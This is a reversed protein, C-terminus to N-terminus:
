QHTKCGPCFRPPEVSDYIDPRPKGLVKVLGVAGKDIRNISHDLIAYNGPVQFKAEVVAAGGSPVLTTQVSRAPPSVLDGERYVRDFISGIIHFSSVLNPGANGFYIRVNDDQKVVLPKEVLQGERGNFLVHKPIEKSAGDYDIEYMPSGDDDDDEADVVYLEHQMVYFEKDVKPLGDSPEVLILGFMGNNIHVPIPAAACHYVFLGPKQLLFYGTKTEGQEAFTVPSGGGPGCAAHFDISHAMGSEDYNTHNVQLVDGVRARIFPGPICYKIKGQTEDCFGFPWWEYKKSGSVRMKKNISFVDVVLRVPHSRTIPPPVKPAMTVVAREVPYQLEASLSRKTEDTLTTRHNLSGGLTDRFLEPIYSPIDDYDDDRKKNKKKNNDNIDDHEESHAKNSNTQQNNQEDNSQNCKNCKNNEEEALTLPTQNWQCISLVVGAAAITCGVNIVGNHSHHHTSSSKCRRTVINSNNSNSTARFAFFSLSSKKSYKTALQSLRHIIM